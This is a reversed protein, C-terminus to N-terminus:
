LHRHHAVPFRFVGNSRTAQAVHVEAHQHNRRQSQIQLEALLVVLQKQSQLVVHAAAHRRLIKLKLQLVSIARPSERQLMAAM